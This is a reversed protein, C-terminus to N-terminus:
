GIKAEEGRKKLVLCRRLDHYVKRAHAGMTVGGETSAGTWALIYCRSLPTALQQRFIASLILVRDDKGRMEACVVSEV